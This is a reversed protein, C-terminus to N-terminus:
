RLRVVFKEVINYAAVQRAREIRGTGAKAQRIQQKALNLVIRFAEAVDLDAKRAENIDTDAVKVHTTDDEVEGLRGIMYGLPRSSTALRDKCEAASKITLHEHGCRARLLYFRSQNNRLMSGFRFVVSYSV